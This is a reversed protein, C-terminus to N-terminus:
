KHCILSGPSYLDENIPFKMHRLAPSAPLFVNPMSTACTGENYTPVGLDNVSSQFTLTSGALDISEVSIKQLQQCSGLWIFQTKESNLKLRNSSMWNDIEAIYATVKSIASGANGPRESVFLQGDDAYCYVGLGHDSAIVPIDATYLLFLLPGLVSGQPMGSSLAAVISTM